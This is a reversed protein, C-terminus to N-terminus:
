QNAPMWGFEKIKAIVYDGIVKHGGTSPHYGDAWFWTNINAGTRLSSITAPLGAVALQAATAANCFLASGTTAPAMRAPDCAFSAVNAMGYKSPNAAVDTLLVNMDIIAVSATGALGSSLATNFTTQFQRALTQNAAPMAAINPFLVPDFFDLVAIRTAGKAAIENKILTALETGATQMNAVATAPSIQAAGVAGLLALGDNSGAWVLVIDGAGFSHVVAFVPQSKGAHHIRM